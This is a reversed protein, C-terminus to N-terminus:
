HVGAVLMWCGAVLMRCGAVTGSRIKSKPSGGMDVRSDPALRKITGAALDAQHNVENAQSGGPWATIM